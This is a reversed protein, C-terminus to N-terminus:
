WAYIRVEVTRDTPAGDWLQVKYLLLGGYSWYMLLTDFYYECSELIGSNNLKSKSILDSHERM